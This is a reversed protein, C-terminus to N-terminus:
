FKIIFSLDCSAQIISMAQPAGPPETTTYTGLYEWWTGLGGGAPLGVKHTDGAGGINRGEDAGDAHWAGVVGHRHQPMNSLQITQLDSGSLAGVTAPVTAGRVVRGVLNPLRSTGAPDGPLSFSTGILVSLAVYEPRLPDITRGDALLFGAPVDTGGYALITGIPFRQQNMVSAMQLTLKDVQTQIDDIQAV